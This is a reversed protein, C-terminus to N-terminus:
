SLKRTKLTTDDFEILHRQTNGRLQAFVSEGPRLRVLSQEATSQGFIRGKAIRAGPWEDVHRRMVEGPLNPVDPGNCDFLILVSCPEKLTPEHTLWWHPPSSRGEFQTEARKVRPGQEGVIIPISILLFPQLPIIEQNEEEGLLLCPHNFKDRTIVIGETVTGGSFTFLQAM